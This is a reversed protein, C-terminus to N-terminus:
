NVERGIRRYGTPINFEDPSLKKSEIKTVDIRTVQPPIKEIRSMFREAEEKPVDAPVFSRNVGRTAEIILPVGTPISISGSPQGIRRVISQVFHSFEESSPADTSFCATTAAM